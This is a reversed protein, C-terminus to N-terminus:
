WKQHSLILCQQQYQKRIVCSLLFYSGVVETVVLAVNSIRRETPLLVRTQESLLVTTRIWLWKPSELIDWLWTASCTRFTTKRIKRGSATLPVPIERVRSYPWERRWSSSCDFTACRTPTPLFPQEWHQCFGYLCCKRMSTTACSSRHCCRAM